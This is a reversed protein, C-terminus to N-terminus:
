WCRGCLRVPPFSIEEEVVRDKVDWSPERMELEEDELVLVRDLGVLERRFGFFSSM